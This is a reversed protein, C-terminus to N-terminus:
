VRLRLQFNLTLIHHMRAVLWRGLSRRGTYRSMPEEDMSAATDLDFIAVRFDQGLTHGLHKPELDRHVLKLTGHLVELGGLLDSVM